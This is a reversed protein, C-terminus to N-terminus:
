PASLGEQRLTAELLVRADSAALHPDNAELEIWLRIGAGEETDITKAQVKAGGLPRAAREMADIMVQAPVGLGILAASFMDGAVGMAPDIVLGPVETSRV